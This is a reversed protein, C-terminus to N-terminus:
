YFRETYYEKGCINTHSPAPTEEDLRAKLGEAKSSIVRRVFAYTCQGYTLAARCAREMLDSDTTRALHLLGDASKYFTEPQAPPNSSFMREMVQGLCQSLRYASVTYREPSRKQYDGYYSPQHDPQTVYRETGARSHTAM